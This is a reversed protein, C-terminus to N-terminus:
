PQQWADLWESIIKKERQSREHRISASILVVSSIFQMRDSKINRALKITSIPLFNIDRDLFNWYRILFYKFNIVCIDDTM